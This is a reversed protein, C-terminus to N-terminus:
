NDSLVRVLEEVWRQKEEQKRELVKVRYIAQDIWYDQEGRLYGFQNHKGMEQLVVYRPVWGNSGPRSLKEVLKTLEQCTPKERWNLQRVFSHNNLFVYPVPGDPSSEKEVLVLRIAKAYDLTWEALQKKHGCVFRTLKELLESEPKKNEPRVAGMMRINRILGYVYMRGILRRMLPSQSEMDLKILDQGNSKISIVSSQHLLDLCQNFEDKALTFAQINRLRQWLQDKELGDSASKHNLFNIIIDHNRLTEDVKQHDDALM